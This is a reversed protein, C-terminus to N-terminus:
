FYIFYRHIFSVLNASSKEESVGFFSMSFASLLLYPRRLAQIQQILTTFIATNNLLRSIWHLQTEASSKMSRSFAIELKHFCLLVRITLVIRLLFFLAPPIVFDVNNAMITLCWSLFWMYVLPTSSGTTM